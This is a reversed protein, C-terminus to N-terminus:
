CFKTAAWSISVTLNSNPKMITCSTHSATCQSRLRERDRAERDYPNEMANLKPDVDDYDFYLHGNLFAETIREYQDKHEPNEGNWNPPLSMVKAMAAIWVIM